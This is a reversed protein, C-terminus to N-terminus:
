CSPYGKFSGGASCTQVRGVANTSAQLTATIKSNTATISQAAAFGRLSDFQVVVNPTLSVNDPMSVTKVNQWNVVASPDNDYDVTYSAGDAAIVLRADTRRRIAESRALQLDIALMNLGGELRQRAITEIFSPTAISALIALIAITVMAEVLTIGRATTRTAGGQLPRSPATKM